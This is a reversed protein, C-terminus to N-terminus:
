AERLTLIIRIRTADALMSYVEVPHGGVRCGSAHHDIRVSRGVSEAPRHQEDCRTVAGRGRGRGRM